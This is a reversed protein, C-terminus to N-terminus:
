KKRKTVPAKLHLELYTVLGSMRYILDELEKVYPTGGHKAWAEWINMLRDRMYRLSRLHVKTAGRPM